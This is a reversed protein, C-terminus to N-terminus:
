MTLNTPQVSNKLLCISKIDHLEAHELIMTYLLYDVTIFNHIHYTM